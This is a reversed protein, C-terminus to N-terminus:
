EEEPSEAEADGGLVSVITIAPPKKALVRDLVAIVAFTLAFGVGASVCAAVTNDFILRGLYYFLGCVVLPAIFVLAAYGMVRKSETEVEVRDGVAAGIKNVAYARAYKGKGDIIFSLECHGQCGDKGSTRECNECMAARRTEIVTGKETIEVVRATQRM